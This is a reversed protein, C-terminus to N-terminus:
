ASLSARILGYFLWLCVVFGVIFGCAVGWALGHWCAIFRAAPTALISATMVISTAILARWLASKIEKHAEMNARLRKLQGDILPSEPPPYGILNWDALFKARRDIFEQYRGEARLTELTTAM